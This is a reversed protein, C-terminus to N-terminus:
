GAGAGVDRLLADGWAGMLARAGAEAAAPDRRELAAALELLRERLSASAAATAHRLPAALPPAALFRTLSNCLLLLARQGGLRALYAGLGAMAEHFAAEPLGERALARLARVADDLQADGARELAARAGGATALARLEWVDGVWDARPKEGACLQLQVFELSAQQPDRVRTGSGRQIEILQLQELTKLAERVSSRNVGLEEALEREGPLRDGPRLEGSAIRAGLRAAVSRPVSRASRLREDPM